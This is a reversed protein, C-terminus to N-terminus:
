GPGPATSNEPYAMQWLDDASLEVVKDGAVRWFITHGSPEREVTEFRAFERFAELLGSQVLMPSLDVFVVVEDEFTLQLRGGFLPKVSTITHLPPTPHAMQLLRDASLELDKDGIRWLAARGDPSVKATEFLAWDRLLEFDGGQALIASLDIEAVGSEDDLSLNLGPAPEAPTTRHTFPKIWNIRHLTTRAGPRARGPPQQDLQGGDPIREEPHAMLWLADACLDVVDDEGEGIRWFIARGGPEIEVAAFRAPDRLPEFVGGQALMASLDVVDHFEARDDDDFRLYLRGDGNGFPKLDNITHLEM